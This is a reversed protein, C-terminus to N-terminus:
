LLKNKHSTSLSLQVMLASSLPLAGLLGAEDGAFLGEAEGGTPLERVAELLLTKPNM